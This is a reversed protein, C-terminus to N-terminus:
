KTEKLQLIQKSITIELNLLQPFKPTVTEESPRGVMTTRMKVLSPHPKLLEDCELIGLALVAPKAFYSLNM